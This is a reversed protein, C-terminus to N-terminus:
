HYFEKSIIDSRCRFDEVGYRTDRILSKTVRHPKKTFANKVEAVEKSDGLDLIQRRADSIQRRIDLAEREHYFKGM